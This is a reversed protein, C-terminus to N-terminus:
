QPVNTNFVFRDSTFYNFGTAFVVGAVTALMYYMGLATTLLFFLIQNLVVAVARAAHYRIWRNWIKGEGCKTRERWTFRSNLIFNLQLSIFAQVFYAVNKEITLIDVFVYLLTIGILAVLGGVLGFKWFRGAQPVTGILKAVHLLFTFGQKTTAKSKGDARASFRYPIESVTKWQCRVLIELLIKFGIPALNEQLVDRRVLFFGSLPDTVRNLKPFFVMRAFEKLAISLFKRFPGSLGEYSGGKRYRSAIVIDVGSVEAEKVLAPIMQPPHQLDGDMVCVYTGRAENFGRVVATALGGKQEEGQRHIIHINGHNRMLEGIIGPTQDTSDDVFVVEYNIGDMSKAIKEVLVRVNQEENRTPVIISLELRENM